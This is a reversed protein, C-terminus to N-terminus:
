RVYESLGDPSPAVPGYVQCLAPRGLVCVHPETTSDSLRMVGAGLLGYRLNVNSSRLNVKPECKSHAHRGLESSRPQYSSELVIGPVILQVATLPRM